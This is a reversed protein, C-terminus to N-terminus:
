EMLRQHRCHHWYQRNHRNHWEDRGVIEEMSIMSLRVVFDYIEAFLDSLANYLRSFSTLMTPMMGKNLM